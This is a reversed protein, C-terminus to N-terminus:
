RKLKITMTKAKTVKAGSPATATLSLRVKLRKKKRLAKRAKASLKITLKPKVGAKVTTRGSGVTVTASTLASSAATAKFTLVTGAPFEDAPLSFSFTKGDKPATASGPLSGLGDAIMQQDAPLSGGGTGGSGGEGGGTTTTPAPTASATPAPSASPEPTPSPQAPVTVTWAFTAPSADANGAKDVARVAFSHAGALLGTYSKGAADCAVFAASDLKCEFKDVDGNTGNYTFNATTETTSAAPTTAIATDPATLDVVFVRQAPTADTQGYQDTSRILVTHEGESLGTYQQPSTCAAYDATDLKCEFTAGGATSTFGFLASATKIAANNAPGSGISTDPAAPLPLTTTQASSFPGTGIDNVAAVDVTYPTSEVLGTVDTQLGAVTKEVAPGVPPTVRVIYGTIPLGGSPVAPAKWSAAISRVGPVLTPSGVPLAAPVTPTKKTVSTSFPGIGVANEAAVQAEYTTNAKLQGFTLSVADAAATAEEWDTTGSERYRVLYGTIATGGTNPPTWGVVIQPGSLAATAKPALPATLATFSTVDSTSLVDDEANLVSVRWYYTTGGVYGKVSAVASKVTTVTEYATQFGETTSSEFKYRVAGPVDNWDFVLSPVPQSAADAPSVHQAKTSGITFPLVQASWPGAAGFADVQRVRWSYTDAELAVTPVWQPYKRGATSGSVGATAIKNGVPFTADVGRYVEVEYYGAFATPTWRLVPNGVAAQPQLPVPASSEKKFHKRESWSLAVGAADIARVRWDYEGDDLSDNIPSYGTADTTITSVATDTSDIIQLEYWKVGGGDPSTTLHDQWSLAVTDTQLSAGTLGTVAMGLKNFTKFRDPINIAQNEALCVTDPDNLGEYVVCPLVFWFYPQGATNDLLMQNIVLETNTTGIAGVRSNFSSDRAFQIVYGQAGNVRDWTLRPSGETNPSSTIYGPEALSTGGAPKPLIKFHLFGPPTGEGERATDSWLTTRTVGATTTQEVARVRLRYLGSPLLFRDAPDLLKCAGFGSLPTGSYSGSDYPAFHAHPTKCTRTELSASDTFEVEYYSARRIPTWSFYLRDIELQNGLELGDHDELTIAPRAQNGAGDLWERKLKSVDSYQTPEGNPQLARVRWFYQDQAMSARPRYRTAGTVVTSTLSSDVPFDPATSTQIEYKAAGAVATWSFEFDDIDVDVDDVPGLLTPKSTGPWAISFSRLDSEDSWKTTVAPNTSIGQVRWYRPSNSPLTVPLALSTAATTFSTAGTFTSEDDIQVVYKDMAAVPQWSLVAADGPYSLTAGPAPSVLAPANGPVRTFSQAESYTGEVNTGDITRVRWYLTGLPLETNPTASTGFVVATYAPTGSFVESTSVQIRYKAARAVPAWSLTPNATVTAGQAPAGLEPSALSDARATATLGFVALLLVVLLANTRAGFSRKRASSM